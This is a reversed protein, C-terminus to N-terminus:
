FLPRTEGVEPEDKNKKASGWGAAGAKFPQAAGSAPNQAQRKQAERHATEALVKFQRERRLYLEDTVDAPSDEARKRTAVDQELATDPIKSFPIRM